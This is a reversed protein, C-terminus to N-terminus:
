HFLCLKGYMFVFFLSCAAPLFTSKLKEKEQQSFQTEITTFQHCLSLLHRQPFALCLYNLILSNHAAQSIEETFLNDLKVRTAKLSPQYRQQTSSGHKTNNGASTFGCSKPLKSLEKQL